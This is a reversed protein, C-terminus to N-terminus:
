TSKPMVCLFAEKLHQPIPVVEIRENYQTVHEGPDMTGDSMKMNPTLFRKPVEIDCILPAFSSIKHNVPSVELMPKIVGLVSLIM